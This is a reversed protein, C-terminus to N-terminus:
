AVNREGSPRHGAGTIPPADPPGAILSMHIAALQWAALFEEIADM